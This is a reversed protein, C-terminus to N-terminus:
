AQRDQFDCAAARARRVRRATQPRPSRGKAHARVAEETEHPGVYVAFFRVGKKAYVKELRALRPTYRNSIPCETSLFVFAAAKGDGAATRLRYERGGMERFVADAVPEAPRRSVVGTAAGIVFLLIFAALVPVFLRSSAPRHNM